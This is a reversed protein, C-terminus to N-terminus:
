CIACRGNAALGDAILDGGAFVDSDSALLPDFRMQTEVVGISMSILAVDSETIKILHINSPSTKNGEANNKTSRPEASGVRRRPGM